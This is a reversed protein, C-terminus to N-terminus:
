LIQINLGQAMSFKGVVVRYAIEQDFVVRLQNVHVGLLYNFTEILDM